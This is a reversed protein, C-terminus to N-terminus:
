QGKAGGIGALRHRRFLLLLKEERRVNLLDMVGGLADRSYYAERQAISLYGVVGAHLADVFV